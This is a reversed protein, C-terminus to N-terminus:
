SAMRYVWRSADRQAKALEKEERSRAVWSLSVAFIAALICAAAVLYVFPVDLWATSRESAVSTTVPVVAVAMTPVARDTVTQARAAAFLLGGMKEQQVARVQESELQALALQVLAAGMREQIAGAQRRHARIAEVIRQGLTAQWTSSFQQNMLHGRAEVLRIQESNFASHLRDASVLGTRVGRGTFNVIARGMVEQTRAMHQAPATAAYHMVAGLPGGPRSLFEDHALTARNWEAAAMAIARDSRREFLSQDVIAQGMAPQLWAMGSKLGMSQEFPSSQPLTTQYTGGAAAFFLLAGFLIACMGVGVAVDITNYRYSM